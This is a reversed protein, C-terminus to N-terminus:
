NLWIREFLWYGGFVAVAVSCAPALRAIFMPKSRLKWLLTLVVAAVMLQGLEVGVNFSFLPMVVGGAREGVGMERLVSAFGLGHILGFGFTLLSRGAPEGRRLLNEVSVYIISAAILPEVFRSPLIVLNFTAM